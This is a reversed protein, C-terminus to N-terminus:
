RNQKQRTVIFSFNLFSIMQNCFFLMHKLEEGEPSEAELHVWGQYLEWLNARAEHLPFNVFFYDMESDANEIDEDSLGLPQYDLLKKIEEM